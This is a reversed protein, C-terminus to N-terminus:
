VGALFDFIGEVNLKGYGWERNPYSLTNDRTAGRIMYNRVGESDVFIDNQEVVAWQLIQAAAGATLAAAMSTGTQDGLATSVNVGPASIDPSIFGETSFGRGSNAYISGNADNYATVTIAGVAYSPATLTINPDPELFYTDKSIFQSIPLWIDFSGNMTERSTNVRISWIGPTPDVFRFRILEAGSSKEVLFYEISLTTKDFVFTYEQPRRIRPNVWEISEGGPTRVTVTYLFPVGGWFDMVFGTEGEGVRLEVNKYPQQNTLEGHYHHAANGENGGAVAFVRSRLNMIRQMYGELSTNGAHDGLSTGVGLCIVMPRYLNQVYRQLYQIALMIDNEMYCPVNEPILYYDKLYQKAEKLKVVVIDCEPAAGIFRGNSEVRSGAAVSAMATGHGDTDTSPVIELPNDSAIAENIMERTYESGFEFGEPPTGSQVTQDWIATIRTEGLADLFAPNQYRIGTDIIGVTVRRGTLNLPEGQVALIGTDLLALVNSQVSSQQASVIDQVNGMLGYCKPYFSYAQAVGTAQSPLDARRAYIIGLEGIIRHYCYDIPLQYNFEEPIRLDVIVDVYDNSLIREKCTAM